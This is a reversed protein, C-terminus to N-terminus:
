LADGRLKDVERQKAAVSAWLFSGEGNHRLSMDVATTTLAGLQREATALRQALSKEIFIDQVADKRCFVLECYHTENEGYRIGFGTIRDHNKIEAPMVTDSFRLFTVGTKKLYEIEGCVEETSLDVVEGSQLM